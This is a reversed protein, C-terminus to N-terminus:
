LAYLTPLYFKLIFRTTLRAEIIENKDVLYNNFLEKRFASYAQIIIITIERYDISKLTNIAQKGYTYRCRFVHIYEFDVTFRPKTM